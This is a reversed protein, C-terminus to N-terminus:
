RDMTKERMALTTLFNDTHLDESTHVNSSRGLPSAIRSIVRVGGLCKRASGRM